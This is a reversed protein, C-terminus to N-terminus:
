VAVKEIVPMPTLLLDTPTLKGKSWVGSGECLWEGFPAEVLELCRACMTITGIKKVIPPHGVAACLMKRVSEIPLSVVSKCILTIAKENDTNRPKRM